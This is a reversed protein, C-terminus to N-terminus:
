QSTARMSYAIFTAVCYCGTRRMTRVAMQLPAFTRQKWRQCRESEHLQAAGSTSTPSLYASPAKDWVRHILQPDGYRRAPETLSPIAPRNIREHVADWLALGEADGTSYTKFSVINRSWGEPPNIWDEEDFFFPSTLIRCGIPFDTRDSRDTRRYRAIRARMEESTAAGNARGFAKWALSCPMNNAHTFVGGGVISNRPSHLNFLFLEGPQLARFNASSPAWFNVEDLHPEQRLLDFWDGDTVAVVLNVAM